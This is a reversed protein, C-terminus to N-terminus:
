PEQAFKPFSLLKGVKFSPTYDCATKRAVDILEQHDRGLEEPDVGLTPQSDAPVDVLYTSSLGYQYPNTFLHRVVTGTLGTEEELERIVADHDTGGPKVGGGPLM